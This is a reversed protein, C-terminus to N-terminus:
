IALPFSKIEFIVYIYYFLINKDTKSLYYFAEEISVRKRNERQFRMVKKWHREVCM